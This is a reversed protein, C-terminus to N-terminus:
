DDTPMEYNELYELLESVTTFETQPTEECCTTTTKETVCATLALVSLILLSKKM